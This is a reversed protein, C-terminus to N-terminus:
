SANPPSVIYKLYDVKTSLVAIPFLSGKFYDFDEPSNERWIDEYIYIDYIYWTDERWIDEKIYLRLVGTERYIM